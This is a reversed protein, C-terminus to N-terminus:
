IEYILLIGNQSNILVLAVGLIIYMGEGISCLSVPEPFGGIRAVPIRGYLRDQRGLFSLRKVEQTIIHLAEVVLEELDTLAVNDWLQAIEESSLGNARIFRCPIAGETIRLFASPREMVRDLRYMRTGNNGIQIVIYPEGETRKSADTILKKHITGQEDTEQAYWKISLTLMEDPADVPGISIMKLNEKLDERGCFLFRIDWIREKSNVDNENIPRNIRPFEDRSRLLDVLVSPRGRQTFLWLAELLSSKGVNNKGVILNVRGFQPIILRNFARYQHIQLSSLTLKSM